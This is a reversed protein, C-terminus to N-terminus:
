NCKHPQLDIAKDAVHSCFKLSSFPFFIMRVLMQVTKLSFANFLVGPIIYCLDIDFDLRGEIVLLAHLEM